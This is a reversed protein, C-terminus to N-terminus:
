HEASQTVMDRATHTGTLVTMSKLEGGAGRFDNSIQFSKRNEPAEAPVPCPRQKGQDAGSNPFKLQPCPDPRVQRKTDSGPSPAGKPHSTAEQRRGEGALAAKAQAQTQAQAVVRSRHRSSLAKRPCLSRVTLVSGWTATM